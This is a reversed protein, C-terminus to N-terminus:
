TDLDEEEDEVELYAGKPHVLTAEVGGVWITSRSLGPLWRPRSCYHLVFPRLDGREDRIFQIPEKKACHPCEWMHRDKREKWEDRILYWFGCAAIIALAVMALCAVTNLITYGIDM